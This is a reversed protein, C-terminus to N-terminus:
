PPPRSMWWISGANVRRQYDRLDAWPAPSRYPELPEVTILDNVVLHAVQPCQSRWFTIQGGPSTGGSFAGGVAPRSGLTLTTKAVPVGDSGVIEEVLPPATLARAYAQPNAMIFEPASPNIWGKGESRRKEEQPPPEFRRKRFDEAGRELALDSESKPM